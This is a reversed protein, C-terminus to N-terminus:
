LSSFVVVENIGLIKLIFPFISVFFLLLLSSFVEIIVFPWFKLVKHITNFFFPFILPHFELNTIIKIIKLSEM